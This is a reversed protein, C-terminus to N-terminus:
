RTSFASGGSHTQGLPSPLRDPAQWKPTWSPPEARGKCQGRCSGALRSRPCHSPPLKRICQRQRTEANRAVNRSLSREGVLRGVCAVCQYRQNAHRGTETYSRRCLGAGFANKREESSAGDDTLKRYNIGREIDATATRSAANLKRLRAANLGKCFSMGLETFRQEPKESFAHAVSVLHHCGCAKKPEFAPNGLCQELQRIMKLLFDVLASRSGDSSLASRSQRWPRCQVRAQACCRPLIRGSFAVISRPFLPGM